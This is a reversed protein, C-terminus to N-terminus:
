WGGFTSSAQSSTDGVKDDSKQKNEQALRRGKAPCRNGDEHVHYPCMDTSNYQEKSMLAPRPFPVLSTTLDWLAEKPWRDFEEHVLMSRGCIKSMADIIMRRLLSGPLTNEYVLDLSHTPLSWTEVINRKLRNIMENMLLPIDRRDAFLWLRIIVNSSSKLTNDEIKRAYLWLVFREFVDVEEDELKFHGTGSETWSGNLGARFYGSYFSLLGKHVYFTRKQEERGVEITAMEGYASSQPMNSFDRRSPLADKTTRISKSAVEESAKSSMDDAKRKLPNDKISGGGFTNPEPAARGSQVFVENPNRKIPTQASMNTPNTVASDKESMDDPKPKPM